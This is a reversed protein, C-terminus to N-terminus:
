AVAFLASGPRSQPHFELSLGLEEEDPRRWALHPVSLPGVEDWVSPLSWIAEIPLDQGAPRRDMRRWGEETLCKLCLNPPLAPHSRLHFRRDWTQAAGPLLRLPRPMASERLVFLDQDALLFRCGALTTSGEGRWLNSLLRTVRQSSPAYAAGGVTQTVLALSQTAIPLPVSQLAEVALVALGEPRWACSKALFALMEEEFQRRLRAFVQSTRAIAGIAWGQDVLAPRLGRLLVRRHRHDQNSPDEVWTLGRERLLAELREKAIALLPRLHLVSSRVSIASMAALGPLESRSELRLLFTEEQDDRHHGSALYILGRERCAAELLRYRAKRAEAQLASLPKAGRWRLLHSEVGLRQAQAIVGLAERRSEQRLGHDVVFAVVAGGRTETWIQLLLLLALSDAGGSLAVGIAPAKPFPGLAAM